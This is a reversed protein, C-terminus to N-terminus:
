KKWTDPNDKTYPQSLFTMMRAGDSLSEIIHNENPEVTFITGRSAVFKSDDIEVIVAGKTIYFTEYTEKHYHNGLISGKAMEYENVQAVPTTFLQTLTRRQDKHSFEPSIVKLLEKWDKQVVM